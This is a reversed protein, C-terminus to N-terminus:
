QGPERNREAQDRFYGMIFEDRQIMRQEMGNLQTQMALVSATNLDSADKAADFDTGQLEAAVHTRVQVKIYSPVGWLVITMAAGVAAIGGIIKAPSMDMM